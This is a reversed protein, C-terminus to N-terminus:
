KLFEEWWLHVTEGSAPPVVVTEGDKGWRAWARAWRETFADSKAYDLANHLGVLKAKNATLQQTMRSAETQMRTEAQVRGVINVLLPLSLLLMGISFWTLLRNTSTADASKEFRHPANSQTM